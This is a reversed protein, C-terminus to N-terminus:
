YSTKSLRDKIFPPKRFNAVWHLVSAGIRDDDRANVDAGARILVLALGSIQPMYNLRQYKVIYILLQSHLKNTKSVGANILAVAIKIKEGYPERTVKGKLIMQSILDM